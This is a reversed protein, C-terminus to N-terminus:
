NIIEFEIKLVGKEMSCKYEDSISQIGKESLNVKIDLLFKKENIRKNIFSHILKKNESNEKGSILREGKINFNEFEGDGLHVVELSGEKIKSCIGLEIIFNEGKKDYTYQPEYYEGIFTINDLEDAIIEKPEIKEECIILDKKEDYLAKIPKKLVSPSLNNVHETFKDIINLNNIIQIDIYNKIYQITSDNYYKIEESEDNGLIFHLVDPSAEEEGVKEVYYKNFRDDGNNKEDLSPIDMEELDILVNEILVDKKYNEIDKKTKCNILNHIVLLQKTNRCNKSVKKLFIMESSTLMGVVCILTHAEKIIFTQILYNTIIQCLNIHELEKIFNQDRRKDEEGEQLLLPANTGQTDLLMINKHEPIKISIGKTHIQYGSKLDVGSLKQLIYTKGRNSHGLISVINKKTSKVLERIKEENEKTYDIKWGKENLSRISDIDIIVDYDDSSM